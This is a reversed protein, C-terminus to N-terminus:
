FHYFPIYKNFLKIIINHRKINMNLNKLVIKPSIEKLIKDQDKKLITSLVIEDSDCYPCNKDYHAVYKNSVKNLSSETETKAEHGSGKCKWIAKYMSM